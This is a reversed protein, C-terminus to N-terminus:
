PRPGPSPVDAGDACLRRRPYALAPSLSCHFFGTPIGRHRAGHMRPHAAHWVRPGRRIPKVPPGQIPAGKVTLYPRRTRASSARGVDM